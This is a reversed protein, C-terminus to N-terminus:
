ESNTIFSSWEVAKGGQSIICTYNEAEEIQPVQIIETTPIALEYIIEIGAAANVAAFESVTMNDMESNVVRMIPQAMTGGLGMGLGNFASVSNRKYNPYVNSLQNETYGMNYPTAPTLAFYTVGGSTTLKSISITQWEVRKYYRTLTAVGNVFEITDAVDNVKRLPEDLAIDVVGYGEPLIRIHWKNDLESYEGCSWIENGHVESNGMLKWQTLYTIPTPPVSSNATGIDSTPDVGGVRVSPIKIYPIKVM